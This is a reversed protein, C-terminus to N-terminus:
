ETQGCLAQYVRVTEWAAREWSFRAAQALGKNRLDARAKESEILSQMVGALGEVDYPDVLLAADGAVEPLSSVNSTIVPVGCAMAELVPLGFGEYLSPYVFLLAGNMLAPLDEDPVVGTFIVDETLGLEEVRRFLNEYLWGKGGALVLKLGCTVGRQSLLHFAEVLRIQNKRPELTSVHLLYRGSEVGYRSVVHSVTALNEIPRYCEDVGGYVVSIKDPPISLHAVLDQKTNSSIAIIHDAQHKAFNLKVQHLRIVVPTHWEPFLLPTLDWITIINRAGAVAFQVVDSSHFVDVGELAAQLYAVRRMEQWHAWPWLALRNWHYVVNTGQQPLCFWPLRGGIIQVNPECLDRLDVSCPLNRRVPVYDLLLYQARPESIVLRKLVNYSYTLIGARNIYLATIDLGIRM